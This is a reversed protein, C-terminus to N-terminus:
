NIMTVGGKLTLIGGGKVEAKADGQCSLMTGKITIGSPTIKISNGAVKLEISSKSTISIAGTVDTTQKGKSVKLTHDGSNLTISQNGKGLTVNENGDTITISRNQKVELTQSNEIKGSQDNHIVFRHDRGAEMYIEEKGNKDDFHFENFKSGDIQTKWGSQTATFKPGTNDGNYVAGTVLPRDPDGNIYNVVVEQGVRPM